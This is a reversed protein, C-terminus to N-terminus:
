PGRERREIPAGNEAIHAAAWSAIADVVGRLAAGADTLEYSTRPPMLSHVTRRLVGGAELRELRQTLTAPNCGVSRRLENFGLPGRHLLARVIHLTWKEQLLQLSAHIPCFTRDHRM